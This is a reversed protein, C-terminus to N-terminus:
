NTNEEVELGQPVSIDLFKTLRRIFEEGKENEDRKFELLLEAM